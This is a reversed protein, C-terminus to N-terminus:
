YGQRLVVGALRVGVWVAALGLLVQLAVNAVALGFAQQRGLLFTEYAFASYTTFGGILGTIVLLRASVSLWDRSEAVGALLGIALCGAVNVVLTGLPFRVDGGSPTFALTALYRAVSGIFGGVGVLLINRLM